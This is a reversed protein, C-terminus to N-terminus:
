EFFFTATSPNKATRASTTSYLMPGVCMICQVCVSFLCSFAKDFNERKKQKKEEQICPILTWSLMYVVQELM